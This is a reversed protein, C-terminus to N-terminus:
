ATKLSTEKVAEYIPGKPTLTSKFLTLKTALFQNIANNDGGSLNALSQTLKERNLNSKIRGITIHSTFPKDEKAIGIKEIRTELNAAIQKVESNGTTVGIWIIRPSKIKPFAEISGLKLYFQPTDLAADELIQILQSTKKDDIDGLFKLTLHINVPAVWKVDASSQKLKAQLLSLYDKIEEPLDIAIFARM